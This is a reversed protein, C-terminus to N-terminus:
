PSEEAAGAKMQRWRRYQDAKEPKPDEAGLLWFRMWDFTREASERRLAPEGLMHATRPYVVYETPTGARYAAKPLSIYNTGAKKAGAEFLFRTRVKSFHLDPSLEVYRQPIAEPGGGYGPEHVARNLWSPTANYLAFQNSWGEAASGALFLNSRTAIMPALWGGASYGIIGLREGDAVGSRILEEVGAVVDDIPEADPQEPEAYQAGFSGTGRYNPLFVAFGAEAFAGLPHPWFRASDEFSNTIPIGPGGHVYTVMPRARANPESAPELLWGDLKMGDRGTWALKRARFNVRKEIDENLRTVQHSKAGQQVFLEPPRTLSQLVFLFHGDDSRSFLSADAKSSELFSAKPGGFGVYLSRQGRIVDEIYPAAGRVPFVRPSWFGYWDVDSWPTAEGTKPNVLAVQKSQRWLHGDRIRVRYIRLADAYPEWDGGTYAPSKGSFVAKADSVAVITKLTEGPVDLIGIAYSQMGPIVPGYGYRISLQQGTSRFLM